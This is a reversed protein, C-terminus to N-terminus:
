DIVGTARALRIAESKSLGKEGLITYRTRRIKHAMTLAKVIHKEEMGLERATTPARVRKLATRIREWDLGHLYAMMITGVGCQEGHLAPSPAIRDLAHSFLHESGSCPRTSGAISTAVGCSILAELLTRIGESIKNKILNASKIVLKASMLALNAAYEGYYERKVKHALQWDKVATLKAIVDGCGSAILRYPSRAIVSADAVIAYPAQARVSTPSKLGHISAHTSAIGDHSAATPVSVFPVGEEVSSLKAVDIVKGGGAGVVLSSREKSIAKKAAKVFKMSAKDVLVVSPKIGAKKLSREITNGVLRYVHPGILLLASGSFGLAKCVGGIRNLVDEGVIVKRPLEM